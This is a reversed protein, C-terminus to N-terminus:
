FNLTYGTVMMGYTTGTDFMKLYVTQSTPLPVQYNGLAYIGAIPERGNGNGCFKEGLGASSGAIMAADNSSQSSYLYGSVAAAVPPVQTSISQSTYSTTGAQGAFVSQPDISTTDGAQYFNIFNSSGNNRVAGVVRFYDYDTPLTPSTASLSFLGNVTSSTSNYIIYFYYWTSSAESGTDLGGAGSLGINPAVSVNNVRKSNGSADFMIANKAAINVIAASSNSATIGRIGVGLGLGSLTGARWNLDADAILTQGEETPAQWTIDDETAGGCDKTLVGCGTSPYISSIPQWSFSTLSQDAILIQYASATYDPKFAKLCDDDQVVLRTEETGTHTPLDPLCLSDGGNWQPTGGNAILVASTEPTQITHKCYATDEVVMQLPSLTTGLPECTEPLSNSCTPCQHCSSCSNSGCGFGGCNSTFSSGAGCNCNSM